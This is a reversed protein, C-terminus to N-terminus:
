RAGEAEVRARSEGCGRAVGPKARVLPGDGRGGDCRHDVNAGAYLLWPGRGMGGSGFGFGVGWLSRPGRVGTCTWVVGSLDM